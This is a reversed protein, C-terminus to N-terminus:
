TLGHERQQAVNWTFPMACMVPPRSRLVHRAHQGVTQLRAHATATSRAASRRQSCRCPLTASALHVADNLQPMPMAEHDRGLVGIAGDLGARAAPVRARIPLM